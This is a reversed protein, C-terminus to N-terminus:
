LNVINVIIIIYHFEVWALNFETLIIVLVDIVVPLQTSVSYSFQVCIDQYKKGSCVFYVSHWYINGDVLFSSVLLSSLDM